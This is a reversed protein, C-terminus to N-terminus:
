PPLVMIIRTGRGPASDVSLAAGISAARDRLLRLGVHDAPV